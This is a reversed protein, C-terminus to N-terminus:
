FAVVVVVFFGSPIGKQTCAIKRHSSRKIKEKIKLAADAADSSEWALPQILAAHALGLGCGCCCYSLIWAM